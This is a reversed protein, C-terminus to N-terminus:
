FGHARMEISSVSDESDFDGRLIHKMEHDYAKLRAAANLNENVMITTFDNVQVSFAKVAGPMPQVIVRLEPYEEQPM